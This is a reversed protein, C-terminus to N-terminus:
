GELVFVNDLLFRRHGGSVPVLHGYYDLATKCLRVPLQLGRAMCESNLASVALRYFM